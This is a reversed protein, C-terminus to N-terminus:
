RQANRMFVLRGSRIQVSNKRPNSTATRQKIPRSGRQKVSSVQNPQAAASTGFGTLRDPINDPKAKKIRVIAQYAPMPQSIRNKMFFFCRSFTGQYMVR